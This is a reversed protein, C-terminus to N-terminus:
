KQIFSRSKGAHALGGLDGAHSNRLTRVPPKSSVPRAAVPVTKLAASMEATPQFEITQDEKRISIDEPIDDNPGQM